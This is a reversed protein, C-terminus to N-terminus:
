KNLEKWAKRDIEEQSQAQEFKTDDILNCKYCKWRWSLQSSNTLVQKEFNTNGYSKIMIKGCRPCEPNNKSSIPMKEDIMKDIEEKSIPISVQQLHYKPDEEPLRIGVYEQSEIQKFINRKCNECIGYLYCAAVNIRPGNGWFGTSETGNYAYKFIWLPKPHRCKKAIEDSTIAYSSKEYTKDGQCFGEDQMKQKKCGSIGIIFIVLFLTLGFKLINM